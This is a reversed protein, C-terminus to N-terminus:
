DSIPRLTPRQFKSGAIFKGTGAKGLIKENDYVVEGRRITTKPFGTVAFGAYSSFKTASFMDADKIIKKKAPDWIVIDADSGVQIVGKRPYFGFIKAANTSTVAVFQEPTIRDKVVGDSFLMPPYEQLNPFGQRRKGVNQTPDVKAERTFGSHDTGITHIVGRRIGDWLMDQDWKDRMPPGGLWLGADPDAYKKATVHLYQPRTEVYVPLGRREADEAVKLARGSSVHDILIPAGTAEAIAVSRQVALVEGITPAFQGFNHITGGTGADETQLREVAEALISYDEAHIASVVGAQASARFKKMWALSNKDYQEGSM